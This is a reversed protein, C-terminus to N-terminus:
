RYGLSFEQLCSLGLVVGVVVWVHWHEAICVKLEWCSCWVGSSICTWDLVLAGQALRLVGSVFGCLTRLGPGSVGHM